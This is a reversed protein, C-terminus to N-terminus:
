ILLVRVSYWKAGEDVRRKYKYKIQFRLLESGNDSPRTTIANSNPDPPRSKSERRRCDQKETGFKTKIVINMINKGDKRTM